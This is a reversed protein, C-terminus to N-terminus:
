EAAELRITALIEDFRKPTVRGFPTGNVSIAPSLACNGLCYVAELTVNGSADTEGVPIGLRREAHRCLNDGGM